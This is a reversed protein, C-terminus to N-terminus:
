NRCAAGPAGHRIRTETRRQNNGACRDPDYRFPIGSWPALTWPLLIAANLRKQRDACRAALLFKEPFWLLTLPFVRPASNGCIFEMDLMVDRETRGASIRELIYTFTDDTLKQAERILSLEKESKVSRLDRLMQDFRNDDSVSVPALKESLQKYLAMSVSESEVYLKTISHKQCLASIEDFPATSLCVTCSNVVEKAKEFYRFDILFVAEERTLLVYGDSTEFGTLYFRNPISGVLLAANPELANQLNKVALKQM